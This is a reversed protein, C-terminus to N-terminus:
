KTITFAVFASQVCFIISVTYIYVYLVLYKCWHISPVLRYTRTKVIGIAYTLTWVILLTCLCSVHFGNQKTKKRCYFLVYVCTIWNINYIVSASMVCGQVDLCFHALRNYCCQGSYMFKWFVSKICFSVLDANTQYINYPVKLFILLCFLLKHKYLTSFICWSGM